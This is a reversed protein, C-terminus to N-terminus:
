LIMTLHDSGEVKERHRRDRELQEVTEEDDLLVVTIEM